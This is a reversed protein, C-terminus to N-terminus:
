CNVFYVITEANLNAEFSAKKCPWFTLVLIYDIKTSSYWM